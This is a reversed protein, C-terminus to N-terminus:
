MYSRLGGFSLEYYGLISWLKFLQNICMKYTINIIFIYNYLIYIRVIFYSFTPLFLM